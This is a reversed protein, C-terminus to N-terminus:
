LQGMDVETCLLLKSFTIITTEAIMRRSFNEEIRGGFEVVEVLGPCLTIAIASHHDRPIIDPLPVVM